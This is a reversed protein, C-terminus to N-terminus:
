FRHHPQRGTSKDKDSLSSLLLEKTDRLTEPGLFGISPQIESVEIKHIIIISESTIHIHIDIYICIYLYIYMYMYICIYTCVCM